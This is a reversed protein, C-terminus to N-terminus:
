YNNNEDNNFILFNGVFYDEGKIFEFVRQIKFFCYM